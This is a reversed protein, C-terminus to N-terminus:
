KRDRNYVNKQSKDFKKQNKFILKVTIYKPTLLSSLLYLNTIIDKNYGIITLYFKKQSIM